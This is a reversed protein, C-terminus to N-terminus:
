LNCCNRRLVVTRASAAADSKAARLVMNLAALEVAAEGAFFVGLPAIFFSQLTSKFPALATAAIEGLKVADPVVVTVMSLWATVALAGVVALLVEVVIVPLGVLPWVMIIVFPALESVKVAVPVTAALMLPVKEPSAEVPVVSVMVSGFVEVVSVSVAPLVFEPEHPVDGM